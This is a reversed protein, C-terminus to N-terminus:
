NLRKVQEVINRVWSQCELAVGVPVFQAFVVQRKNISQFEQFFDTVPYFRNDSDYTNLIRVNVLGIYNFYDHLSTWYLNVGTVVCPGVLGTFSPDKWSEQFINKYVTVWQVPLDQRLLPRCIYVLDGSKPVNQKPNTPHRLWDGM